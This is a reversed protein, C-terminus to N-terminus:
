WLDASYRDRAVYYKTLYKGKLHSVIAGSHSWQNLVGVLVKNQTSIWLVKQARHRLKM